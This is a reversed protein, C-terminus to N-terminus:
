LDINAIVFESYDITGNNNFDLKEMFEKVKKKAMERSPFVKM